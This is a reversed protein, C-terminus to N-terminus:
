IKQAFKNELIRKEKSYNEEIKNITIGHEIEYLRTYTMLRSFAYNLMIIPGLEGLRISKRFIWCYRLMAALM